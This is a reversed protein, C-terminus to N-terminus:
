RSLFSHALADIDRIYFGVPEGIRNFLNQIKRLLTKNGRIQPLRVVLSLVLLLLKCDDVTWTTTCIIQEPGLGHKRKKPDRRGYNISFV